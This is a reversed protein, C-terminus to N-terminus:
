TSESLQGGHNLIIGDQCDLATKGTLIAALQLSLMGAASSIGREIEM